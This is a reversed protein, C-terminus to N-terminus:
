SIAYTMASIMEDINWRSECPRQVQVQRIVHGARFFQKVSQIRLFPDTGAQTGSKAESSGAESWLWSSFGSRGWDWARCQSLPSITAHDDDAPPLTLGSPHLKSLDQTRSSIIRMMNNARIVERALERLTVVLLRARLRAVELTTRSRALSRCFEGSSTTM